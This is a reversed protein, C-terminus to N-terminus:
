RDEVTFNTSRAGLTLGARELLSFSVNRARLTLAVIATVVVSSVVTIAGAPAVAGSLLRSTLRALTGTSTITGMLSKKGQRVLAGVPAITGVVVIYVTRLTTLTSAPAIAGALLRQAQKLIGGAPAVVGGLAKQTQNALSGGPAITGVLAVLVTRIGSLTGSPTVAGSLAKQAQNLLTATLALAGSVTKQPQNALAGTSGVNGSLVKQAQRLMAGSSAVLGVLIKQAQRILTAAPAISGALVKQDQKALSSSPAITGSASQTYETGGSGLDTVTFSDIEWGSNADDTSDTLEAGGGLGLGAKGAASIDSDTASAVEAGDDYFKLATGIIELKCVSGAAPCTFASGLTSWTGSVKKYLQGGSAVNTLRVAYMNEQDQMRVFVFFPRTSFAVSAVLTFAADYDASPYTGNATYMVGSNNQGTGKCRDTSGIVTLTPLGGDNWLKTWSTGTDPTHSALTTDSAETFTDNFIAM